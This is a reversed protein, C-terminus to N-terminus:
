AHRRRCHAGARARQPRRMGRAVDTDLHEVVVVVGDQRREQMDVALREATAVSRHMGAMCNVLVGVCVGSPRGPDTLVREMEDNLEQLSNQYGQEHGPM